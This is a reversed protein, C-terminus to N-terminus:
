SLCKIDKNKCIKALYCPQIDDKIREKKLTYSFDELSYEHLETDMVEVQM